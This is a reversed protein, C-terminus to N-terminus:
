HKLGRLSTPLDHALEVPDVRSLLEKSDTQGVASFVEDVAKAPLALVASTTTSAANAVPTVFTAPSPALSEARKIAGSSVSGAVAAAQSPDISGAWYITQNISNGSANATQTIVQDASSILIDEVERPTLSPNADLMLAIVGSIHAASMSTGSVNTVNHSDGSSGVIAAAPINAGPALLYNLPTIAATSNTPSWRMGNIDIAGAVIGFGVAFAAPYDPAAQTRNGAAVVFVAGPSDAYMKNRLTPLVSGSPSTQTTALSLDVIRTATAYGAPLTYNMAYDIGNVIATESAPGDDGIKVPVVRSDYAVGTIGGADNKGAIAGAVATGHGNSDTVITTQAVVNRGSLTNLDLNNSDVGSDLSFVATNTGTATGWADPAKVLDLNWNNLPAGTAATTSGTAYAVARAANVLGYGFTTRYGELYATTDLVVPNVSSMPRVNHVHNSMDKYLIQLSAPVGSNTFSRYYIDPKAATGPVVDTAGSLTAFTGFGDTLAVFGAGTAGATANFEDLGDIAAALSAKSVDGVASVTITKTAADYSATATGVTGSGAAIQVTVGNYLTGGFAATVTITAGDALTITGTASTAPTDAQGLNGLPMTLVSGSQYDHDAWTAGGQLLHLHSNVDYYAISLKQASPDYAAAPASATHVNTLVATHWTGGSTLWVGRLGGAGDKYVVWGVGPTGSGSSNYSVGELEGTAGNYPAILGPLDTSDLSDYGWATGSWLFYGLSGDARHYMYYEYDGIQMAAVGSTPVARAAADSDEGVFATLDTDIWTTGFDPSGVLHVHGASNIYLIQRGGHFAAATPDNVAGSAVIQTAQWSAGSKVDIIKGSSALYVAHLEATGDSAIPEYITPNGVPTPAATGLLSNVTAANWNAGTYSTSAASEGFEFRLNGSYGSFFAQEGNNFATGVPQSNAGAFSDPLYIATLLARTELLECQL